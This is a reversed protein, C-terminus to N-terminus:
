ALRGAYHQVREALREGAPDSRGELLAVWADATILLQDYVITCSLVTANLQVEHIGDLRQLSDLFTELLEFSFGDATSLASRELRIRIRGPIHHAISLFRCLDQLQQDNM